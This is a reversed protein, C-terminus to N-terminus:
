YYDGDDAQKQIICKSDSGARLYHKFPVPIIGNATTQLSGVPGMSWIVWQKQNLQFAKDSPDDLCPM